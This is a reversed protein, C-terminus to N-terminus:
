YSGCVALYAESSPKLQIFLDNETFRFVRSASKCVPIQLSLAAYSNLLLPLM